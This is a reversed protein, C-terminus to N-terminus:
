FINCPPLWSSTPTPEPEPQPPSQPAPGDFVSINRGWTNSFLNNLLNEPRFAISEYSEITEPPTNFESYQGLPQIITTAQNIVDPYEISYIQAYGDLQGLADNMWARVDAAEGFFLSFIAGRYYASTITKFREQGATDWVQYKICIGDHILTRIRFDVGITSIFPSDSPTRGYEPVHSVFESKGVESNGILLTKLLYDYGNIPGSHNRAGGGYINRQPAEGVVIAASPLYIRGNETRPFFPSAHNRTTASTSPGQPTPQVATQSPNPNRNSASTAPDRSPRGYAEDDPEYVDSILHPNRHLFISVTEKATWDIDYGTIIKNTVPCRRNGNMIRIATALEVTVGSGNLEVPTHFIQLTVPCRVSKEENARIQEETYGALPSQLAEETESSTQDEEEREKQAAQQRNIM